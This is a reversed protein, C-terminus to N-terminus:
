ALGLCIRASEGGILDPLVPPRPVSNHCISLGSSRPQIYIQYLINISTFLVEVDTLLIM